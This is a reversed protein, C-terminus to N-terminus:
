TLLQPESSATIALFDVGPVEITEFTYFANAPADVQAVADMLVFSSFCLFLTFTSFLFNTKDQTFM